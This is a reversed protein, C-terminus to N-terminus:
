LADKGGFIDFEGGTVYNLYAAVENRQVELYTRQEVSLGARRLQLTSNAWRTYSDEIRYMMRRRLREVDAWSRDTASPSRPLDALDWTATVTWITQEPYLFNTKDFLKSQDTNGPNAYYNVGGTTKDAHKMQATIVPLLGQYRADNRRAAIQAGDIQYNRLGIEIVEWMPAQNYIEQIEIPTETADRTRDAKRFIVNGSWVIADEMSALSDVLVLDISRQTPRSFVLEWTHGSDHSLFVDDVTAVMIHENHEGEVQIWSIPKRAFGEYTLRTSKGKDCITIGDGTVGYAPGQTRWVWAPTAEPSDIAFICVMDYSRRDETERWMINGAIMQLRGENFGVAGLKMTLIMPNTYPAWTDGFNFTELIHANVTKGIMHGPRKKDCSLWTIRGSGVDQGTNMQEFYLPEGPAARFIGNSANIFVYDFCKDIQNITGPDRVENDVIDALIQASPRRYRGRLQRGLDLSRQASATRDRIPQTTNVDRLLDLHLSPNRLQKLKIDILNDLSRPEFVMDWTIGKDFSRYVEGGNTGIWLENDPMTGVFSIDDTVNQGPTVEIWDQQATVVLSAIALAVFTV